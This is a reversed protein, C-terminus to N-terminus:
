EDDDSIVEIKCRKKPPGMPKEAKRKSKDMDVDDAVYLSSLPPVDDEEDIFDSEYDGDEDDETKEGYAETEEALYADIRDVQEAVAKFQEIAALAGNLKKTLDRVLNRLDRCEQDLEKVDRPEPQTSKAIFKKMYPTSTSANINNALVADFLAATKAQWM